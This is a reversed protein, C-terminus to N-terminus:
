RFPFLVFVSVDWLAHSVILAPLAKPWVRFLTSWVVGLVAAAALLMFNFSFLHVLTYLAVAFLAARNPTYLEGLTRQVYGRWFLEEVPGIFLLLLAGVGWPSAGEKLTYVSDVQCSAFDFLLASIKDGAWFVCWLFAALLAGYLVYRPTFHLVDRWDRRFGFAMTYLVAAATGMTSWFPIRSATWPSFMVGWLAFAVFLATMLKTKASM